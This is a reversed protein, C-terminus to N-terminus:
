KEKMLQVLEKISEVAARHAVLTRDGARVVVLDRVGVLAVTESADESFVFNDTAQLTHLQGRGRNGAPGSTHFQELALWGGVDSWEFAARVMRVLEAKEMVGFDISIKPLPEFAARLREDWEPTGDADALPALRRAHDPLLRELTGWITRTNWVFMGSNWSHHGSTIFAHATQADPKERFALLEFHEVGDDDGTREGAELYGYGTSAYTPVIGFTYLAESERAGRAASLLTRQFADVPQILHDATLVAMVPDGFRAKCLVAALAVAASTDRPMPEGIINAAPLDPLQEAVTAVFRQNTLVLVREPPVLGDLRDWTLQLMTREGFLRLFQKPKVETSVPWFRTGSGGAMVVVVLDRNPDFDQTM